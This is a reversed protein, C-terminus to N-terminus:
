VNSMKTTSTVLTISCSRPDWKLSLPEDATYSLLSTHGPSPSEERRQAQSSASKATTLCHGRESASLNYPPRERGRPEQSEACRLKDVTKGPLFLSM